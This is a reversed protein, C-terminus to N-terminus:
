KEEIISVWKKIIPGLEFNDVVKMAECQIHHHKKIDKLTNTLIHAYANEDYPSVVYGNVGDSIIDRLVPFSDFAIPILGYSMAEPLVLPLGEFTSCMCFIQATRYYDQVNTRFGEIQVRKLNHKKIFSKVYPMKIGDGVLVLEWDPAVKEVQAWIRMLRDIGKMVDLRGVYLCQKQKISFNVHPRDFSLPNGIAYLKDGNKIYSEKLAIDKLCESLVVYKDCLNYLNTRRTKDRETIKKHFLRMSLQRKLNWWPCTHLGNRHSIQYCNPSSHEVIIIKLKNRHTAKELLYENPFYSDQYIITNVHEEMLLTNFFDVNDSSYNLGDYPLHFVKVRRDLRTLIGPDKIRSSCILIRYKEILANALCVTVGEIGGFAPFDSLLFLLANM